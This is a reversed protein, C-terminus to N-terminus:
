HVSSRDGPLGRSRDNRLHRPIEDAGPGSGVRGALLALYGDDGPEDKASRLAQRLEEEQRLGRQVLVKFDADVETQTDLAPLLVAGRAGVTEFKSLPTAPGLPSALTKSKALSVSVALVDESSDDTAPVWSVDSQLNLPHVSPVVVVCATSWPALEGDVFEAALVPELKPSSAPISPPRPGGM